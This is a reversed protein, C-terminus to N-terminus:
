ETQFQENYKEKLKPESAIVRDMADDFSIDKDQALKTAKEAIIEDAPRNDEGPPDTPPEQGATETAGEELESLGDAKKGKLSEYFKRYTDAESTGEEIAALTVVKDGDAKLIAVVRNRESEIGEALAKKRIEALLEAHDSELLALTIEMNVEEKKSFTLEVSVADKEDSLVIGATQNDAGLAVFSVERMYSEMWIEAPGTVEVGNVTEVEKDDQLVKVKKPWLGMSAQFPVGDDALKPIERGDRSDAFTGKLYVSGNEKWAMGSGAIRDRMHERLVPLKEDFQIGDVSFIMDYYYREIKQGTYATLMFSRPKNTGSGDDGLTEVVVPVTMSIPERLGKANNWALDCAAYAEKDTSGNKMESATCRKLFDTKAENKKPGKAM